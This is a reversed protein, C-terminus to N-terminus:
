VESYASQFEPVACLRHKGGVCEKMVVLVGTPIATVYYFSGDKRVTYVVYLGTSNTVTMYVECGKPLTCESVPFAEGLKQVITEEGKRRYCPFGSLGKESSIGRDIGAFFWLLYGPWGFICGITYMLAFPADSKNTYGILGMVFWSCFLYGGICIYIVVGVVTWFGYPGMIYDNMASLM